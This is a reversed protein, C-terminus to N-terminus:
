INVAGKRFKGPSIKYAQKFMKSFYYIDECGVIVAIKKIEMESNKLLKAATEMRKRIVFQGPPFGSLLRFVRRFHSYSMYLKKSLDHFDYTIEPKEKVLDIIEKVKKEAPSIVQLPRDEKLLLLLGELLYVARSNGYLPSELYSLLEDMKECFLMANPVTRYPTSTSNDFLQRQLFSKVREGRFSIFRHDWITNGDFNGFKFNPGPYTWWAIPAELIVTKGKGKQWNLKGSHAYMLVFYDPFVKDVLADCESIHNFGVWEIGNFYNM